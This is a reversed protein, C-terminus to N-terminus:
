YSPHPFVAQLVSQPVDHCGRPRELHACLLDTVFVMAWSDHANHLLMTSLRNHLPMISFGNRLPM